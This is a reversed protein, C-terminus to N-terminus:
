HKQTHLKFRSFTEVLVRGAAIKAYSSPVIRGGSYEVAKKLVKRVAAGLRGGDRVGLVKWVLSPRLRIVNGRARYVAVYLAVAACLEEAGAPRRCERELFELFLRM